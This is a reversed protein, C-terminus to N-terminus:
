TRRRVRALLGAVAIWVALIAVAFLLSGIEPRERFIPELVEWFLWAKPAGILRRVVESGVYIILANAGLWGFPVSWRRQGRMDVVFYIASLIIATIGATVLAFSGTWLPKSWPLVFSWLWGGAIAAVGGVALARALNAGAPQRRIMEGATAGLVASASATLTGLLGEPDIPIALAHRGLVHTDIFRALNEDPTVTGGAHGGFPVFALLAWHGILLAAAVLLWGMFRAHLVVIGAVLYALAIRQLVGPIRLPSIAPWATVANLVLGLAFLLMVRVGIHRYLDSTSAGAARRRAIAMPLALGMTFVFAPFVLDALTLGTWYAHQLQPFVATWDGPNNVAIMGAVALGRLVDLSEVRSRKLNGTEDQM